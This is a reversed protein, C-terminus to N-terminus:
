TTSSARTSRQDHRNTHEVLGMNLVPRADRGGTHAHQGHRVGAPAPAPTSRTPPWGAGGFNDRQFSGDGKRFGLLYFFDDMSCSLYFLNVALQENGRADAPDFVVVALDQLAGQIAPGDDGLHANFAAASPGTPRSGPTPSATRCGRRSPCTTTPWPGRFESTRRDGDGDVPFVSGEAAVTRVLQRCYLVEGSAADVVM